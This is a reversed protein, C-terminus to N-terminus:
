SKQPESIPDGQKTTKDDNKPPDLPAEKKTMLGYKIAEEANEELYAPLNAPDNDMKKRLVAPLQEFLEVSERIKNMSDQFDGYTSVDVIQENFQPNSLPTGTKRYNELISNIDCEQKFNQQTMSKLGDFSHLVRRTGNKRTEIITKM